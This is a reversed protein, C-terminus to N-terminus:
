EAGGCAILAPYPPLSEVWPAFRAITPIFAYADSMAHWPREAFISPAVRRLQDNTLPQSQSRYILSHNM